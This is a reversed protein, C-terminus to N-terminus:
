RGWWHMIPHVVDLPGDDPLLPAESVLLLNQRYWVEVREDTWIPWRLGGSVHRGRGRFLDAWYSQWRLNVHGAGTQHPIAASFLITPAMTCLEAVFSEAREAPLHEAVELCVALDYGGVAFIHVSLDSAVFQDLAGDAPTAYEGDIGTVHCGHKRFEAGWWGQGCGVDVVTSVEGVLDLVMPVVVAASSRSGQAITDYFGDDYTGM